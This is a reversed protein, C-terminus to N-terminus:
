LHFFWFPKWPAGQRGVPERCLHLVRGYALVYMGVFTCIHSVVVLM